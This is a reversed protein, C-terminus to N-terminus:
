KGERRMRALRKLMAHYRQWVDPPPPDEGTLEKVIDNWVDEEVYGANDYIRQLISRLRAVECWPCEWNGANLSLHGSDCQRIVEAM